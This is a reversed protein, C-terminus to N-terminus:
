IAESKRQAPPQSVKGPPPGIVLRFGVLPSPRRPDRILRQACPHGNMPVVSCHGRMYCRNEEARTLTWEFVGSAIDAMGYPSVDRSWGGVPGITGDGVELEPHDGWPWGRGDVGRAAKEWEANSPLRFTRGERQSRWRAYAHADALSIGTVPRRADFAGFAAQAHRGFLRPGGGWIRPQRAAGEESSTRALDALFERWEGCTVPHVAIAFDALWASRMPPADDEFTRSGYLFPGAAVHVFGAPPPQVEIELRVPEARRVVFPLIIPHPDVRVLAYGTGAPVSPLRVPASGDYLTRQSAEHRVVVPVGPPLTRLALPAGADLGEARRPDFILLLRRFHVYALEDRDTRARRCREALREAVADAAEFRGGALALRGQRVAEALLADANRLAQAVLQTSRWDDGTVRALLGDVHLVAETVRECVDRARTACGAAWEAHEEAMRASEQYRQLTEALAMPSAPRQGPDMSLAQLVVRELMVPVDPMFESLPRPNGRRVKALVENVQTGAFPPRGALIHYLIAGLGYVDSAPGVLDQLGMAQEPSMYYPTGIVSGVRTVRGDDRALQRAEAVDALDSADPMLQRALGLDVLAVEGWAGILVNAPKLDRHVVNHAHAFAVGQCVRRMLTLLRDRGHETTGEGNAQAQLVDRLSLGEVPRMAFFRRGDPLTGLDYVPLMVPHQLRGTIRAEMAFRYRALADAKHRDHLIKLAVQRRLVRDWAMVVRGMSGRAIENHLEYRSPGNDIPESAEIRRPQTKREALGLFVTRGEVTIEESRFGPLSHPEASPLAPPRPLPWDPVLGRQEGQSPGADAALRFGLGALPLGPNFPARHPLASESAPLMWSGGRLIVAEGGRHVCVFERVTGALDMVGAPSCDLPASAVSPPALRQESGRQHSASPDPREGWPYRRGDGGAAKEWELETPLRWAIGDRAARWTIYARIRVADLGVIPMDPQWLAGDPTAFPLPYGTPGPQWFPATGVFLRPAMAPAHEPDRMRFDELFERYEAFTVPTRGIFFPGLHARSQPLARLDRTRDSGVRCTGAPILVTGPLWAAPLDLALRQTEGRDLLLPVAVPPRDPLTLRLLLRGPAVEVRLPTAGLPRGEDLSWVGDEDNWHHVVVQAGTPTSTIDLEALPPPLQLSGEIQELTAALFAHIPEGARQTGQVLGAYLAAEGLLARQHGPLAAQARLYNEDAQFFAEQIERLATSGLHPHAPRETAGPEPDPWLQRRAEAFRVVAADAEQLLTRAREVRREEARNGELYDELETAFEEANLRRGEPEIVLARLCLDELSLSVGSQHHGPPVLRGERIRALVESSSPGSFPPRDTLVAYLLAGLGWVDARSDVDTLGHLLREPALFGLGSGVENLREDREPHTAESWHRARFWGGLLVEGFPGLHVHVPRLDRHTVGNRHAFAVARAVDLLSELLAQSRWRSRAAAGGRARIKIAGDLTDALPLSTVFFPSKEPGTVEALEYVPQVAPHQLAAQRRVAAVFGAPDLPSKAPRIHVAVDRGLLLDRAPFVEVFRGRMIPRDSLDFRARGTLAPGKAEVIGTDYLTDDEDGWSAAPSRPPKIVKSLVLDAQSEWEWESSSDAEPEVSLVAEIAEVAVADMDALVKLRAAAPTGLLGAAVWRTLCGEGLPAGLAVVEAVGGACRPALVEAVKEYFAPSAM